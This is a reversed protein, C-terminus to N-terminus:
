DEPYLDYKLCIGHMDLRCKFETLEGGDASVQYNYKMGPLIRGGDARVAEIIMWDDSDVDQQGYNSRDFWYFAGCKHHKRAIRFENRILDAM